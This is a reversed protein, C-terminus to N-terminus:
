FRRRGGVITAIVRTQLLEAPTCAVPDRDLVTLDAYFGPQIRGLKDELFVAHASGATYLELATRADVVQQPQWGGLPTGDPHTRTRAAHLGALPDVGEVPFDTGFCLHAGTDLLSRWAYAGALREPGLRQGAWDMDSTCHVPQMAAIVGLEAFRPIDGPALIQAHEIRWRADKLELEDLVDRYIDLVLTNASDGIAHTAVQFGARGARMAQARLHAAAGVPLGRHGPRDSYYARLLAGRSGLAGDAYLKVTRLTFMDDPTTIPGRALGGALTEEIDDYMAFVRLDLKGSHALAEYIEARELPVGATQVATIGHRLCHEVALGIRRMIEGREEAPIVARVLDVANDVLLGTPEGAADREIAGGPPDPTGRTIGAAQLAATNALAAHGDVRRLLAPHGASVPDILGRDPYRQGPWDNQDWGRGELWTGPLAQVAAAAVRAAVEAPTATGNLDIEALAKGLGYLHCHSDHLGPVVTAGDLALVQTQPGQWALAGADDGVYVILGGKVAVATAHQPTDPTSLTVVNGGHLILDATERSGGCGTAAVLATLGLLPILRM